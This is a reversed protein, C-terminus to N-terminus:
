TSDGAGPDYLRMVRNSRIKRELNCVLIDALLVNSWRVLYDIALKPFFLTISIDLVPGMNSLTKDVSITVSLIPVQVMIIFILMVHSTSFISGTHASLIAYPSIVM